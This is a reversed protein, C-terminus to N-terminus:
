NLSFVITVTRSWFYGKPDEINMLASFVELFVYMELDQEIPALFSIPPLFAALPYLWSDCFIAM